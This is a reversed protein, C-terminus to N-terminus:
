NTNSEKTGTLKPILNISAKVYIAGSYVTSIVAVWVFATTAYILFGSLENAETDSGNETAQMIILLTGIVAGCQFVMKLKGSFNASFDGGHQEIFGRLATVLIERGVVVVAMWGHILYLASQDLKDTAQLKTMEVAILIFMGCIIIKDCFPDLIRGLQTVQNNKRALYGDMWDTGAAVIFLILSILYEGMPLLAFIVLSLAFRVFTIINPLNLVRTTKVESM